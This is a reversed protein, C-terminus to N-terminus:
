SQGDDVEKGEYGVLEAVVNPDLCWGNAIRLLNEEDSKFTNRTKWASVIYPIDRSSLNSRKM